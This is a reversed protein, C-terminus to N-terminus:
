KHITLQPFDTIAQAYLAKAGTESPHIEDGSLMGSYWNGSSDAGVGFAFDVYQYGSNRVWENKKEHNISPVTPITALIPIVGKEECLSIVSDIYNKWRESPASSSDTGDNMGMCWLVYKPTKFSLLSELASYASDSSEGSYGNVLVNDGYNDFLYKMWRKENYSFYSDGFCWIKCDIDSCTASLIVDANGIVKAYPHSLINNVFVFTKNYTNGNSTLKININGDKTTTITVQLNNEITIGHNISVGAQNSGYKYTIKTDDVVVSYDNTGDTRIMGVEISTFDSGLKASASLCIGKKISQNFTTLYISSDTLTKRDRLYTNSSDSIKALANYVGNSTVPNNSDQTPTNDFTLKDQKEELGKVKKTIVTTTKKIYFDPYDVYATALSVCIKDIGSEVTYEDVQTMNSVFTDGNYTNLFRFPINGGRYAAIVDGPNVTIYAHRYEPASPHLIGDSVFGVSWEIDSLHTEIVEVEDETIDDLDGKLEYIKNTNDQIQEAQESTAGPAVPNKDLYTNVAETIKEGSVNKAEEVKKNLLGYTLIDM